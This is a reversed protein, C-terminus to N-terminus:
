EGIQETQIVINKVTDWWALAEAEDQWPIQYGTPSPVFPQHIKAQKDVFVEFIGNKFVLDVQM